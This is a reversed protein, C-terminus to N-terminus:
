VLDSCFTISLQNQKVIIKLFKILVHNELVLYVKVIQTPHTQITIPYKKNSFSVKLPNNFTIPICFTIDIFM